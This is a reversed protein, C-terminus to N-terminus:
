MESFQVSCLICEFLTREFKCKQACAKTAALAKEFIETNSDKQKNHCNLFQLGFNLIVQLIKIKRSGKHVKITEKKDEKKSPAVWTNPSIKQSYIRFEVQIDTPYFQGTLRTQSLLM